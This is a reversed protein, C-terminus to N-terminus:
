CNRPPLHHHPPPPSSSFYNLGTGRAEEGEQGPHADGMEDKSTVHDRRKSM